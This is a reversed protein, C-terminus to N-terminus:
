PDYTELRTRTVRYFRRPSTIAAGSELTTTKTSGADAPKAADLTTWSGTTTDSAEM